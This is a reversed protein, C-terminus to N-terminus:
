LNQAINPCNKSVFEQCSIGLIGTRNEIYKTWNTHAFGTLLSKDQGGWGITLFLFRIRKSAMNQGFIIGFVNKRENKVGIQNCSFKINRIIVCSPAGRLLM